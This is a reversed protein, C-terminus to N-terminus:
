EGGLTLVDQSTLLYAAAAILLNPDDRFFGIARNCTDCLLGRVAGSDHDHDVRLVGASRRTDTRPQSGPHGGCIACVCGQEVLMADYDGPTIGYSKRLHRARYGPKVAGPYRNKEYAMSCAKCYSQLGDRASKLKWFEAVPKAERCRACTKRELEGM